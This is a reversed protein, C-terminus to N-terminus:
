ALGALRGIVPHRDDLLQDVRGALLSLILDDYTMGHQALGLSVLSTVGPSPAKLDPKPNAELVFLRGETDSRLDLRVLAELAFEDAVARAIGDLTRLVERDRDPCLLRAREGTIPRLDMSTFITEGPELVRELASFVFPDDRRSLRGGSAVVRGAVAVCYEPGGLYPEILAAGHTAAHVGAVADRLELVSAVYTVHLSARGSVPKVVFPGRHRGFTRAFRRAFARDAMPRLGDPDPRVLLSPATPIGAAALQRKFRHKDDLLAAVLPDHGVYPLGCLELLGPAHAMAARGQVGATNLWAMHTRSSALAGALGLDDPLVAVEERIGLRTLSAAIDRAVPEYSKWSRHNASPHLVAGDRSKDGAYIVALRLRRFLVEVARALEAASRRATVPEGARLRPFALAAVNKM